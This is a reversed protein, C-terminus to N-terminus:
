LYDLLYKHMNHVYMCDAATSSIPTCKGGINTRTYQWKMACLQLNMTVRNSLYMGQLPNIFLMASYACVCCTGHLTMVLAGPLCM